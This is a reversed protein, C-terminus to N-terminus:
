EKARAPLVIEMQPSGPKIDLVRDILNRHADSLKKYERVAVEPKYIIVSDLPIGAARLEGTAATLLAVDPKRTIPYTAKIVWGQALPVTNTGEHPDEFMGKFIRMRLLMESSKLAALQQHMTNWQNLDEMTITDAPIVAM